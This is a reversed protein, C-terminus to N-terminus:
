GLHGERALWGAVIALAAPTMGPLREAEALSRPRERSLAEVVERSLGPLQHPDLDAPLPVHRLRHLREREREQRGLYGDYRLLGVVVRREDPDLGALEDLGAAVREADVDGRRLLQAWSAPAALEVGAVAQVRRRTAADPNLRSAELTSRAQRRRDARRQEVHFVRAPVLGLRWGTAMLRERATDVGLLLRHEARSTFMRYPERHERGCVDDLLVGLYAEAREPVFAAEGRLGRVANIGAVLGLAAAEEYGSTGLLQGAIFLGPV